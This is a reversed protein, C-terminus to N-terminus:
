QLGLRILLKQLLPYRELFRLLLLSSTSKDRPMTVKLTVWGSEYGYIDKAKVRINYSGFTTWRHSASVIEGSNFYKTWSKIGDGWDFLYKVKDGDPDTTRTTYTYKIYPTIKTKGFPKEPTYPAMSNLLIVEMFPYKDKNNAGSIPYPTDGIGDGNNDEGAYNDWYNGGISYEENWINSGEDYATETNNLFNNLYITNDSSYYTLIGLDNNTINNASITNRVTEGMSIGYYNDFIVNGVINNGSSSYLFIGKSSHSSINNNLIYNNSTSHISLGEKNSKITNYSIVNYNPDIDTYGYRNFESVCIGGQANNRIINNSIINNDSSGHLWLGYVDNLKITNNYFINNSSFFVYVGVWRNSSLTNNSITNDNSDKLYISARNNNQINCNSISCNNTERLFIGVFASSLDQNQITINDCLQLIIQGVNESILKDSKNYLYILPKGNVTNDFVDNYGADFYFGTYILTNKSITNPSTTVSIGTGSRDIINSSVINYKSEQWVRIGDYYSITNGFINNAGNDWLQISSEINKYFTNYSITHNCGDDKSVIGYYNYMINNDSVICNRTRIDIGGDWGNQWGEDGSNQITFGSITVDNASIYIVDDIEGGDIVTTNKDEGILSISKDVVVNEYYPSSYDYVFVTDGDSANDIADQILTYNNPGSGGVYLTNGRGSSIIINKDIKIGSSPFIIMGFFLFVITIALFKKM